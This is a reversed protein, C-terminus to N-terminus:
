PFFRVVKYEDLRANRFIVMRHGDITSKASYPKMEILNRLGPIKLTKNSLFDNNFLVKKFQNSAARQGQSTKERPMYGAVIVGRVNRNLFINPCSYILWGGLSHAVLFIQKETDKIEDFKKCFNIVDQDEENPNFFQSIALFGTKLDAAGHISLIITDDNEFHAYLNTSIDPKYDLSVGDVTITSPRQADYSFQIVNFIEKTVSTISDGNDIWNILNTNLKSDEKKSDMFSDLRVAGGSARTRLQQLLQQVNSLKEKPEEEKTEEKEHKPPAEVLNGEGLTEKIKGEFKRKLELLLIATM